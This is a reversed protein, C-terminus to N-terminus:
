QVVLEMWLIWSGVIFKPITTVCSCQWMSTDICSHVMPVFVCCVFMSSRCLVFPSHKHTGAPCFTYLKQSWIMKCCSMTNHWRDNFRNPLKHMTYKNIANWMALRHWIWLWICIAFLFNSHHCQEPVFYKELFSELFIYCIIDFCLLLRQSATIISLKDFIKGSRNVSEM